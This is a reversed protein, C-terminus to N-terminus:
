SGQPKAMLKKMRNKGQELAETRTDAPQEDAQENYVYDSLARVNPYRYIAIEDFVISFHTEMRSKIEMMTLSTGGLDFFNELVSIHDLQLVERCLGAIKQEVENKPLNLKNPQHGRLAATLEGLVANYEGALYAERLKYRQIKGSTTKPIHRVPVVRSVEVGLKSKIQRKLSNALPIFRQMDGTHLVFFFIEDTHLVENRIGGSVVQQFKVWELQAAVADLDAPYYNQGNVIIMEKFRGTITLHAGHMFGLDGTNLWGDASLIAATAVPDNYYGGTIAPSKLCILGVTDDPLGKGQHDAVRVDTAPCTGLDVFATACPHDRGVFEVPDGVNLKKRNVWHEEIEVESLYMAVGLTAEALGYGPRIVNKRLGHKGLLATFQRCVDAAIPEAGNIMMKVRSLDLLGLEDPLLNDLLYKYGFNPSGSVTVGYQALSKVWLAPNTLFLMPPMLCQSANLYLPFLHFFVIGMDHTLPMWGLFVDDRSLNLRGFSASLNHMIGAHTNIVGKPQGTSGSSFQLFAIDEPSVPLPVAAVSGGALQQFYWTKGRIDDWVDGPRAAEPGAIGDHYGPADTLLWPRRLTQWISTIKGAINDSTGYTVPVPIIKGLVCAWFAKIFDKNSQFQLVVESGPTIGARQLNHLICKAERYLEKYTLRDEGAGEEVFAISHNVAANQAIRDFVDLLTKM